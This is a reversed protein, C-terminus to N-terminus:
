DSRTRDSQVHTDIEFIKNYNKEIKKDKLFYKMDTPKMDLGPIKDQNKYLITNAMKIVKDDSKAGRRLISVEHQLEMLKVDMEEMKMKQEDKELQMQEEEVIAAELDLPKGCKTCITSEPSNYMACVNCKQPRNAEEEERPKIGHHEFIAKEVDADVMHVYRAPMRSSASWGHRKRLQAETLFKATTTAESHRFIKLNVRKTIGAKECRIKLMKAAAAYTLPNGFKEKKILIWLPAEQNDKFPHVNCWNALNPVSKILRVNRTGTKGDVKLIAGYKDFKVHKLQLNLIEGPRTGAELHCDIFARDRANEGCAYLLRTLDSETILDERSLSDRVPRLKVHKTEIPDGVEKFDRSGFKMWRVFIKLVKKLDFSSWTEQGREDAYTDMIKFVVDDVDKKSMESWEKQLLRSLNLLAQVHIRRAAKSISQRAMVKDYEIILDQTSKSLEKKIVNLSRQLSKDFEYVSSTISKTDQSKVRVIYHDM